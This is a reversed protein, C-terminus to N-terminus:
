ILTVLSKSIKYKQYIIQIIQNYNENCYGNESDIISSVQMSLVDKIEKPLNAFNNNAYGFKINFELNNLYDYLEIYPENKKFYFARPTNFAEDDFIYKSTDLTLKNAIDEDWNSDYYKVSIVERCNLFPLIVPEKINHELVYVNYYFIKYTTDLILFDTENQWSKVIQPIYVNNLIADYKTETPNTEFYKSFAKVDALSIPFSTTNESILIKNCNNLLM